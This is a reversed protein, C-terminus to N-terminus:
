SRLKCEFKLVAPALLGIRVNQLGQSGPLRPYQTPGDVGPINSSNQGQAARQFLFTRLSSNQQTARLYAIPANGFINQCCIWRNIPDNPTFALKGQGGIQAIQQPRFIM